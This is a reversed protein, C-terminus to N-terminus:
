SPAALMVFGNGVPNRHPEGSANIVFYYVYDFIGSYRSVM